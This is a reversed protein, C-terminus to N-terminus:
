STTGWTDWQRTMRNLDDMLIAWEPADSSSDASEEPLKSEGAGAVHDSIEASDSSAAEDAVDEVDMDGAGLLEGIRGALGQIDPYNFLEVSSLKLGLTRQLSNTLEMSTLSDMGLEFLPSDVPVQSSPSIALASAVLGQVHALLLRQRQDAPASRYQTLFSKADSPDVDDLSSETRLGEFLHRLRIRPPLRQLDLRLVGVVPSSTSDLRLIQDLRTFTEEPSMMAVGSLDGRGIADRSAAAGVRSVPGLAVSLAPLGESRRRSALADLFANAAAHNAQGPSGLISSASSFMVFQDLDDDMTAQHLNWAGCAKARMAVSMTEASQDRLAADSLQGALHFVSALPGGARISQIAAVVEDINSVDARVIRVTAGLRGLQRVVKKESPSADRRAILAVSTAGHDILYRATMLGLGGLGGTIVHVGDGRIPSEDATDGSAGRGCRIVAKGINTGDRLWRMADVTANLDFTRHPLPRIEGRDVRAFVAALHESVDMDSEALQRSLDFAHVTAQPCRAHVRNTLSTDPIAMEIYRGSAALCRLNEDIFDRGLSNVIVDVGQGGTSELVADAYGLRRSDHVHEVGLERLMAHKSVSATAYITAGALKALQILALGVGGAASHILVRQGTQIQGLQELAMSATLFAVPITAAEEPSWTDQLKCIQNAPVNIEDAICGTTIAAVTDGVNVGSVQDGIGTVVGVCEAGPPPSGPYRGLVNLVDRFNLGSARVRVRVEGPAVPSMPLRDISVAQLSGREGVVLRRPNSDTSEVGPLRRLQRVRRDGRTFDIEVAADAENMSRWSLLEDILSDVDHGRIGKCALESHELEITRLISAMTTPLLCGAAEGAVDRGRTIWTLHSLGAGEALQDRHHDLCGQLSGLWHKASDVTEDADVADRDTPFVFVAHSPDVRECADVVCLRAADMPLDVSIRLHEVSQGACSQWRDALENAFDDRESSIILSPLTANSITVTNRRVGSSRSVMVAAPGQFDADDCHRTPSLEITEDLGADSLARRWQSVSMLPYQRREHDTWQWWGTTLGFTLDLWRTPRVGEALILQGHDHLLRRVNTLTTAIDSTAHLVNAAVIVDFTGAQKLWEEDLPKEIDLVRYDMFEFPQFTQRASALFGPTIDTFTYRTRESPLQPLVSATTAGTGGGIELVRCGRGVPLQDGVQRMVLAALDNLCEGGRSDRYVNAASVGGDRPFLLPLPDLAGRMVEPMAAACRQLLTQEHHIAPDTLGIVDLDIEESRVVWQDGRQQVADIEGAIALLRSLLRNFRPEVNGDKALTSQTFVEGARSPMGLQRLVIVALRGAMSELRTWQEAIRNSRAPPVVRSAASHLQKSLDDITSRKACVIPERERIQPCWTEMLAQPPERRGAATLTLGAVSCVLLGDQGIWRVDAQASQGTITERLVVEVDLPLTAAVSVDLGGFWEIRDISTPLWIQDDWYRGAAAVVQFGVDILMPNVTLRNWWGLDPATTRGRAVSDGVRLQSIGRFLPGYHLGIKEFRSYFEDVDLDIDTDGIMTSDCWEREGNSSAITWTAHRRWQGDCQSLIRGGTSDAILHCRSTDEGLILPQEIHVDSLCSPGSSSAGAWKSSTEIAWSVYGAAPFIVQDGVRHDHWPAADNLNTEWITESTALNLENGPLTGANTAASNRTPRSTDGSETEKSSMWHRQRQMPHRPLAERTSIPGLCRDWDLTIGKIYAAAIERAMAIAKSANTAESSSSRHFPLVLREAAISDMRATIPEESRVWSDLGQKFQGNTALEVVRAARWKLHTRHRALGAALAAVDGTDLRSDVNAMLQDLAEPSKASVMLVTADIAADTEPASVSPAVSQVVVHANTGSFGFSSVGAAVSNEQPPLETTQEAVYVTDCWDIHPNPRRFELQAPVQRHRVVLCTKILGAVGAAAELHGINAKVSGVSLRAPGQDQESHGGFAELIGRIEIPDGLSTGTGHAELYGIQQPRTGANALAEQILETQAVRSPATLGNSRGDQNVASGALVAVIDDGDTQAQSLRKLLVVGCGEGRVFGNAGADFTRCVGDPSLMGAQDFSKGLEPSLILNVGAAIAMDCQNMHLAQIAHHTAVLSSSCATDITLSPGRFDFTYSLRGSAMALSNGTAMYPGSVGATLRGYDNNGAGVFVGTRQGSWRDIPIGANEFAQWTVELLCRQQPDMADAERPSIGFFGADFLDIQRIWGARMADPSTSTRTWSRVLDEQDPSGIASKTSHLSEWFDDPGEVHDGGPGPFRCGIGVVAIPDDAVKIAPRPGLNQQIPPESGRGADVLAFSLRRITPYEYALTPPISRGLHEGLAGSLRVAQISTLGFRSFPEDIDLSHPPVNLRSALQTQIWSQLQHAETTASRNVISDGSDDTATELRPRETNVAEPGQRYSAISHHGQEILQQRAQGRRVKGSTTKPVVGPRVLDIAAVSIEHDIAIRDRIAQIVSETNVQRRHTRRLEVILGVKEEGDDGVMGFAAVGGVQVSQHSSETTAEIDQPYHNVGHVIILDKCRGSIFLQRRDPTGADDQFFGLDGTRLFHKSDAVSGDANLISAHYADATVDPRKWYGQTVSPGHVWIEGETGLSCEQMSEPDVIRVDMDDDPYGCGVWTRQTTESLTATQLTRGRIKSTILLTTEAMGYCPCFQNISFGVSAFKDAFRQMVDLDIPEAGNFAVTWRSLDIGDLEGPDIEDVCLRYAFNPGGSVSGGWDSIARLWRVPAQLFDLPTMFTLSSGLFLPYLVNGILGMDHHLPLWGVLHDTETSRFSSRTLKQNHLLNGHSVMVGKPTGSSGSTYQLFALDDPQIRFECFANISSEDIESISHWPVELAAAPTSQRDAGKMMEALEDSALVMSADSDAMISHLRESRRPRRPPYAPVAIMGAYLCGFFAGVYDLGSPLAIVVRQGRQSPNGGLRDHLFGAVRRARADVERYSWAVTADRERSDRSLRYLVQEPHALARAALLDVLNTCTENLPQSKPM